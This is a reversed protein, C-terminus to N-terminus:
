ETSVLSKQSTSASSVSYQFGFSVTPKMASSSEAFMATPTSPTPPPMSAELVLASIDVGELESPIAFQGMQLRTNFFFPRGLKESWKIQWDEAGQGSMDNSQQSTPNFDDIMVFKVIKVVVPVPITGSESALNNGSKGNDHGAIHNDEAIKKRKRANQVM